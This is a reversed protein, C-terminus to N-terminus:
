VHTTAQIAAAITSCNRATYASSSGVLSCGLEMKFLVVIDDISDVRQLVFYREYHTCALGICPLFIFLFLYIVYKKM